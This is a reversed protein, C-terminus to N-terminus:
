TKSIGSDPSAEEENIVKKVGQEIERIEELDKESLPTNHFILQPQAAPMDKGNTTHDISDTYGRHKGRTKDFWIMMTESPREIWGVMKKNGQDDEEYKPIGRILLLQQSENYDLLSERVDDFAQQYKKNKMWNYVTVRSINFGNAINTINGAKAKCVEAFEKVSPKYIKNSGM